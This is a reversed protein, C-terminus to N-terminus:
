KNIFYETAVFIIYFLFLFTGERKNLIKGSRMFAFLIFSSLVMFAATVYIIERAFYFPNILALIGVAITADSIVTGLIDGLALDDVKEKVAKLSFFLEPLTTGLGVVLMGILVPSVRMSEAFAVGYKVTLNAGLLLVAMSLILYVFNKIPYHQNEPAIARGRNKKFTQYFFFAGAAVLLAGDIRSYHGDLGVFIPLALLLPYWKNNELIKSEVKIGRTTSFVIITFVLTLDAVNSGFLTGLGFSPIEGLSSNIAIFTEPLISIVAVVLFGIMYKPFRLFHALSTAYKIAFGASKIVLFLSLVLFLFSLM